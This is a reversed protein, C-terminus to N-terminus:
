INNPDSQRPDRRPSRSPNRLVFVKYDPIIHEFINTRTAFRIVVNKCKSLNKSFEKSQDLFLGACYDFHPFVLLKVLTIKVSAPFLNQNVITNYASSLATTVVALVQFSSFVLIFSVRYSIDVHSARVLKEQFM